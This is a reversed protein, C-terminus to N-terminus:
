SVVQMCELGLVTVSLRLGKAQIVLPHAQTDRLFFPSLVYQIRHQLSQDCQEALQGSIFRPLAFRNRVCM